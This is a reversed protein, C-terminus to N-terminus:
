RDSQASVHSGTLLHRFPSGCDVSRIAPRHSVLALSLLYTFHGFLYALSRCPLHAGEGWGGNSEKVWSPPM